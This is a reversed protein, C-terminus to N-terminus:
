QNKSSSRELRKVTEIFMPISYDAVPGPGNVLVGIGFKRTKDIAVESRFNNVYGGHYCITDSKTQLIRWGLGYWSKMGPLVQHFNGNKVPAQVVPTFLKTLTQKSIVDTRHGLLAILWHGLDSSSANVGGAPVTNYYTEKIPMSRWSGAYPTHPLAHNPNNIMDNRNTSAYKMGLPKFIRQEMESEYSNGTSKRIVEGIVSYAVNQYNYVEGVSSSLNVHRLRVLLEQLPLNAEILNTYAHLPLGTTHSLVHKLTLRMTADHSKLAFGPVHNAVTDDWNLKQEAVLIGTLLAAFPKSVSALRFVTESTVSDTTHIERLGYGKNWIVQNKYVLVLAAGPVGSSEFLSDFQSTYVSVLNRLEASLSDTAQVKPGAAAPVVRNTSGLGLLLILIISPLIATSTAKM